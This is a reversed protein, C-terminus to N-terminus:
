ELWGKPLPVQLFYSFLLHSLVTSSVTVAITMTWSQKEVFKMTPILFVPTIILFGVPQLLVAYCGILICYWVVKIGSGREGEGSEKRDRNARGHSVISKGLIVLSLATILMGLILPFFGELPGLHGWVKFHLSRVILFLGIILFFGASICDRFAKNQM